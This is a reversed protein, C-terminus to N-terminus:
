RTQTYSDGCSCVYTDIYETWAATLTRVECHGAADHHLVEAPVNYSAAMDYGGDGDHVADIHDGWAMLASAQSPDSFQAGCEHCTVVCVHYGELIVEDWAPSDEVWVQDTVAPHEVSRTDTLVYSHVHIEPEVAQGTDQHAKAGPVDPGGSERHAYHDYVATGEKAGQEEYVRAANSQTKEPEAQVKVEPVYTRREKEQSGSHTEKETTKEVPVMKQGEKRGTEVAPIKGCALVVCLVIAAAVAFAAAIIIKKRRNEKM